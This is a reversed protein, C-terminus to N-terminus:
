LVCFGWLVSLQNVVPTYIVTNIIYQWDQLSQLFKSSLGKPSDEKQQKKENYVYFTM